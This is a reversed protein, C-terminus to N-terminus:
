REAVAAHHDVRLALHWREMSTGGASSERVIPATVRTTRVGPTRRVVSVVRSADSSQGDLAVSDGDARISSLEADEPLTLAIRSLVASWRAVSRELDAVAAVRELVRQLSDRSMLARSARVQLASRRAAVASLQREIRWRFAVGAGLFGVCAFGTLLAAMRRGRTLRRQRVSEPVIAFHKALRAAAAAVVAASQKGDARGIVRWRRGRPVAPFDDSARLRRVRSLADRELELVNAEGTLRVCVSMAGRQSAESQRLAWCAWAAQAPVIRDVAFGESALGITIQETLGSSVAFVLLPRQGGRSRERITTAGCIPPEGIGFFYREANTTVALQRDAASMRPLEIRRMRALPPLVAVTVSVRGTARMRRRLEAAAGRIAEVTPGSSLATQWCDSAWSAAFVDQGVSVGLKRSVRM